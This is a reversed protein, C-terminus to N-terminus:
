TLVLVGSNELPKAAGFGTPELKPLVMGAEGKLNPAASGVVTGLLGKASAKLMPESPLVNLIPSVCLFGCSGGFGAAVQKEDGNGVDLAEELCGTNM